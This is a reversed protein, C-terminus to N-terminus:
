SQLTKNQELMDKIAQAQDALDVTLKEREASLANVNQAIKFGDMSFQRLEANENALGKNEKELERVRDKISTM